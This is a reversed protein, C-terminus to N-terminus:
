SEHCELALGEEFGQGSRTAQVDYRQGSPFRQHADRYQTKQLFQFIIDIAQKSRVVVM